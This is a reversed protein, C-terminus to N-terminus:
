AFDQGRACRIRRHREEAHAIEVAGRCERAGFRVGSGRGKVGQEIGATQFRDRGRPQGGILERKGGEGWGGGDVPDEARGVPLQNSLLDQGYLEGVMARDKCFDSPLLRGGALRNQGQRLQSRGHPTM